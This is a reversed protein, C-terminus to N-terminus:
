RGRGAGSGPNRRSQAAVELRKGYHWIRRKQNASPAADAGDTVKYLDDPLGIFCSRKLGQSVHSVRVGGRAIKCKLVNWLGLRSSIIPM